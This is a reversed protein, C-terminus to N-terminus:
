FPQRAVELYDVVARGLIRRTPKGMPEHQRFYQDIFLRPCPRSPRNHQIPLLDFPSQALLIASLAPFLNDDIRFAFLLPYHPQPRPKTNDKHRLLLPANPSDGV